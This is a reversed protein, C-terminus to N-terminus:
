LSPYQPFKTYKMPNKLHNLYHIKMGKDVVGTQSIKIEMQVSALQKENELKKKLSKRIKLLPLGNPGHLRELVDMQDQLVFTHWLKSAPHSM